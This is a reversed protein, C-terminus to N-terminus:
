LGPSTRVTKGFFLGCSTSWRMARMSQDAVASSGMRKAGVLCGDDVLLEGVDAGRIERGGEGRLVVRRM